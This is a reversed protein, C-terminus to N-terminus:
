NLPLIQIGDIVVAVIFNWTEDNQDSMKENSQKEPFEKLRSNHCNSNVIAKPELIAKLM